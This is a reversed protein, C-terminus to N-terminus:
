RAPSRGTCWKRYASRRRRNWCRCLGAGPPSPGLLSYRALQQTSIRPSIDLERFKRELFGRVENGSGETRVSFTEDVLDRWSLVDRQVLPHLRPLAFLLPESWSSMADCDPWSQRGLVFAADLDFRRIAAAHSKPLRKSLTSTLVRMAATM